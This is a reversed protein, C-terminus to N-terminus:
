LTTWPSAFSDSGTTLTITDVAGVTTVDRVYISTSDYASGFAKTGSKHQTFLSYGNASSEMGIGVGSSNKGILPSANTATATKDGYVTLGTTGPLVMTLTGAYAASTLSLAIATLILIKKM